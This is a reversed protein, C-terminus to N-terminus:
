PLERGETFGHMLYHCLPGPAYAQTDPHRMLYRKADWLRLGHPTRLMVGNGEFYLQVDNDYIQSYGKEDLLLSRVLHGGPRAHLEHDRLKEIDTVDDIELSLKARCYAQMEEHPRNHFHLYTFKTAVQGAIEMSAPFHQGDDIVAGCRSPVFGKPFHRNPSFWGQQLPVNFLSPAIAFGSRQGKLTEFEALIKEKGISLGTNTFVAILEDCDVPLAFDYEDDQDLASILSTFHRGKHQFDEPKTLSREIIAGRYEAENLLALTYPDTSGNDLIILNNMDFIFGYHALWRALFPGENKQMMIVKIVSM